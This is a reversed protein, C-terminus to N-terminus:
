WCHEPRNRAAASLQAGFLACTSTSLLLQRAHSVPAGDLSEEEFAPVLRWARVEDCRPDGAAPLGSLGPVRYERSTCPVIVGRSHMM